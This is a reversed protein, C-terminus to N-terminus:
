RGERQDETRGQDDSKPDGGCAATGLLLAGVMAPVVLRRILEGMGTGGERAEGRVHRHGGRDLQGDDLARLVKLLGKEGRKAVLYACTLYGAGYHTSVADNDGEYFM